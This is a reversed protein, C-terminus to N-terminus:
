RYDSAKQEDDMAPNKDNLVVRKLTSKWAEVRDLSARGKTRGRSERTCVRKWIPKREQLRRKSLIYLFRSNHLIFHSPPLTLSRGRAWFRLRPTPGRYQVIFRPNMPRTHSVIDGALRKTGGARERCFPWRHLSIKCTRSALVAITLLRV